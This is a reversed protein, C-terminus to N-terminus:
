KPNIPEPHPPLNPPQIETVSEWPLSRSSSYDDFIQGYADRYQEALKRAEDCNRDLQEYGYVCRMTAAILGHEGWLESETHGDLAIRLQEEVREKSGRPETYKIMSVMKLCQAYDHSGIKNEWKIQPRETDATNAKMQNKTFSQGNTDRQIFETLCGMCFWGDYAIAPHPRKEDVWRITSDKCGCLWDDNM